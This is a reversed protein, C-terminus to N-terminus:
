EPCAGAEGICVDQTASGTLGDLDVADVTVTTLRSAEAPSLVAYDILWVIQGLSDPVLSAVVSGDVSVTASLEDSDTDGDSIVAQVYFPAGPAVRGYPRMLTVEPASGPLVVLQIEAYPKDGSSPDGAEFRLTWTCPVLDGSIPQEILTEHDGEYDEEGFYITAAGCDDAPIASWEYVGGTSDTPSIRGFATIERGSYYPFASSPAVIAVEPPRIPSLSLTNQIGCGALFLIM